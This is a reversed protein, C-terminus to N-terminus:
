VTRVDQSVFLKDRVYESNGSKSNINPFPASTTNSQNQTISVAPINRTQPEDFNDNRVQLNLSGNGTVNGQCRTISLNSGKTVNGVPSNTISLSTATPLLKRVLSMPKQLNGIPPLTRHRSVNADENSNKSMELNSSRIISIPMRSNSETTAQSHESNVIRSPSTTRAKKWAPAMGSMSPVSSTNNNPSQSEHIFSVHTTPLPRQNLLPNDERNNDQNSPMYSVNQNINIRSRAESQNDQSTPSVRVINFNQSDSSNDTSAFDRLRLTIKPPCSTTSSQPPADNQIIRSKNSYDIAVGKKMPSLDLPQQNIDSQKEKIDVRKANLSDDMKSERNEDEIEEIETEELASSM